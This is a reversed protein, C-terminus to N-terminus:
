APPSLGLDAFARDRDFYLALRTVKGDSVDLLNAGRAEVESLEVGSAKGRGRHRILVLMREADLERYEEVDFRYGEWTSLFARWGQTM